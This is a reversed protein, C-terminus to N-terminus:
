ELIAGPAQSIGELELRRAVRLAAAERYPAAIIQIGIPLTGPTYVPASVIPLGIYSLPQTFVGLNPRSAVQVSDLTIMPQGIKIASCPTAPALIVDVTRFVQRMQERFVSRFRQAQLYWANPLLAGALFREVVVPDFDQPRSRLDSLHLNSGECATIIYAAARARDADPITVTKNTGLAKAARAVSEFVEPQGLRAFYGDAVAIRLGEIGHELV